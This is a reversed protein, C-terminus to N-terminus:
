LNSIAFFYILLLNVCDLYILYTSPKKNDFTSLYKNKSKAYRLSCQSLGRIGEEFMQYMDVDSILDLKVKTYLLM